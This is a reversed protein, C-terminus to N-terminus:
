IFGTWTLAPFICSKMAVNFSFAGNGKILITPPSNIYIKL